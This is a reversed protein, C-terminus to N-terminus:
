KQDVSLAFSYKINGFEVDGLIEIPPNESVPHTRVPTLTLYGPIYSYM